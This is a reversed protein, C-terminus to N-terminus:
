FNISGDFIDRDKLWFNDLLRSTWFFPEFCPGSLQQVCELHWQWSRASFQRINWLQQCQEMCDDWQHCHLVGLPPGCVLRSCILVATLPFLNKKFHASNSINM